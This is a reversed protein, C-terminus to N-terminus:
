EDILEKILYRYNDLPKFYKLNRKLLEADETMIRYHDDDIIKKINKIDKFGYLKLISKCNIFIRKTGLLMYQGDVFTLRGRDCGYWCLKLEMIDPSGPFLTAFESEWFAAHGEYCSKESVNFAEGILYNNILYFYGIKAAM